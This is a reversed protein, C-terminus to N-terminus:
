RGGRKIARALRRDLRELQALEQRRDNLLRQIERREGENRAKGQADELGRVQARLSAMRKQVTKRRQVLVKRPIRERAQSVGQPPAAPDAVVPAPALALLM